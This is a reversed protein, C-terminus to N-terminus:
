QIELKNGETLYNSVEKWNITKDILKLLIEYYKLANPNLM